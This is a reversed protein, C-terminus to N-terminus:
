RPGARARAFLAVGHGNGPDTAEAPEGELGSSRRRQDHIRGRLGVLGLGEEAVALAQDVSEVRGHWMMRDQVVFLEMLRVAQIRTGQIAIAIKMANGPVWVRAGDDVVAAM